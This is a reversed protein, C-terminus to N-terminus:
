AYYIFEALDSDYAAQLLKLLAERYSYMQGYEFSRLIIQNENSPHLANILETVQGYTLDGILERTDVGISKLLVSANANNVTLHTPELGEVWQTMNGVRYGQMFDVSM